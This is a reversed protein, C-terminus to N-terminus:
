FVIVLIILVILLIFFPILIKSNAKKRIDDPLKNFEQIIKEFNEQTGITRSVIFYIILFLPIALLKGAFKGSVIGTLNQSFSKFSNLIFFGLILNVIYKSMIIQNQNIFIVEGHM